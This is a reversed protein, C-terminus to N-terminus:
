AIIAMETGFTAQRTERHRSGTVSMQQRAPKIFHLTEVAAFLSYGSYQDRAASHLAISLLKVAM